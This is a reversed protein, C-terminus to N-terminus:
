IAKERRRAESKNRQEGNRGHMLAHLEPRYQEVTEEKGHQCQGTYQQEVLLREADAPFLYKWKEQQCEQIVTGSNKQEPSILEHSASYSSGNM